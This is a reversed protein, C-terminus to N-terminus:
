SAYLLRVTAWYRPIRGDDTQLRNCHRYWSYRCDLQARVSMPVKQEVFDLLLILFEEM